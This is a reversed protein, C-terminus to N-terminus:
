RSFLFASGLRKSIVHPASDYRKRVALAARRFAIALEGICLDFSARVGEASSGFAWGGM